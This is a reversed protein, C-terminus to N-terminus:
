LAVRPVSLTFVSGRPERGDYRVAGGMEEAIRRVIYLGLGTGAGSSIRAYREFLAPRLEPDIGYGDDCVAIAIHEPGAQACVEISGGRPTHTLANAILNAVARRLDGRANLIDTSEDLREILRVGRAQASARFESCLERVVDNVPIRRRDTPPGATEFRAVLLLTEAVRLLDDISMRSDRLVHGYEPPLVGFAGGAAQKLTQALATLPTRVDHALADVLEQIVSQRERLAENSRELEAVLRQNESRVQLAAVLFGVLVISLMSLVRDELGIADWRFADHAADILAALLNLALAAGVLIRTLRRGTAWSALAIPIDYLISVTFTQPTVADVIFAVGLAATAIVLLRPPLRKQVQM